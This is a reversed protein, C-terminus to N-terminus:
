PSTAHDSNARRMSKGRAQPRSVEGKHSGGEKAAGDLLAVYHNPTATPM